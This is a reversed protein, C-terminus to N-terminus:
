SQAQTHQIFFDELSQLPYVSSLKVNMETLQRILDPVAEKAINVVCAHTATSFSDLSITELVKKLQELNTSELAVQNRDPGLCVSVEGDMIKKGRHLILMRNSIMEVEQLLHSSLLITKDRERNLRLITERMDAIGQPDLGNTPEDLILLAPDHVMAIAIGLRQKMGQSFTGVKSKYRQALGVAELQDMLKSKHVAIGSLRAFLQLNDYASLYKYLDPREIIAGVQKLGAKRNSVLDLGQLSIEGSSPKILSLIMRMTTSKGAGNQGLFGFVDGRNVSFSLNDVARFGGFDKTLNRVELIATQM